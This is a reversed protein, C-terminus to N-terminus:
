SHPRVHKLVIVCTRTLFRREGSRAFAEKAVEPIRSASGSRAPALNEHPITQNKTPMLFYTAVPSM